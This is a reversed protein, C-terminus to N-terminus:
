YQYLRAESKEGPSICLTVNGINLQKFKLFNFDFEIVQIM